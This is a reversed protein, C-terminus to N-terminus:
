AARRQAATAAAEADLHDLHELLAEDLLCIEAIGGWEPDIRAFCGAEPREPDHVHELSLLAHLAALDRRLRRSLGPQTAVDDLLRQTRRLAASGGLLLAANQLPENHAQLFVQLDLHAPSLPHIM